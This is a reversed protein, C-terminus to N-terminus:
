PTNNERLLGYRIIPGGDRKWLSPVTPGHADGNGAIHKRGNKNLRNPRICSHHKWENVEKM